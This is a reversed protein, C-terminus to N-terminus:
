ADHPRRLAPGAAAGDSVDRVVGVVRMPTGDASWEIEARCSLLVDGPLHLEVHDDPRPTGAALAARLADAQRREVGGRQPDDADLGVDRYLEELTDSRALM